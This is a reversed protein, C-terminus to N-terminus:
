KSVDLLYDTWAVARFGADTATKERGPDCLVIPAFEPFRRAVHALGRLDEATYRGTKVEVLSGRAGEITVADVEWPEERWHYVERGTNAAHALCANEVWRGWREPEAESTLLDASSAGALLANSLMVLKPPPRRRRPESPSYKSLPKLVFAQELLGLYNAITDLAGREALLGAIKELSLIEAPRSAAVAFIQRLLAPKRITQLHLIDREVVPGVISDRLYARWRSSEDWFSVAGPYGGHSAIRQAADRPPVGFANVLDAATWHGLVIREFRGAMTERSGAGILLSSSGSAVVHLPIRHRLVADFRSKLWRSWDPLYQIEDLLLIAGGKGAREIAQQWVLDCWGPLAAEPADASAYVTRDGEQRAVELLFTTKGVQRLGVLLLIRTPPTEHLRESLIYEVRAFGTATYKDIM